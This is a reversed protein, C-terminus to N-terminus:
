WANLPKKLCTNLIKLCQISLTGVKIFICKKSLISLIIYLHRFIVWGYAVWSLLTFIYAWLFKKNSLIYDCFIRSLYPEHYNTMQWSTM